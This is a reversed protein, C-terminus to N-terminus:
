HCVLWSVTSHIAQLIKKGGDLNLALVLLAMESGFTEYVKLLFGNAKLFFGEFM